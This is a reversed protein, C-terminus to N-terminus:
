RNGALMQKFHMLATRSLVYHGSATVKVQRIETIGPYELQKEEGTPLHWEWAKGLKSYYLFDGHADLRDLGLVPLTRVWKGYLDFVLIGLSPVNLFVQEQHELLYNPKISGSFQNQLWEGEVVQRLDLAMKRLRFAREDYLWFNNDFSRCVLSRTGLKVLELQFQNTPYLMNDLQVLTALEPYFLLLQLPNFVDVGELPGLVQQRYNGVWQGNADYKVLENSRSILYYNGLHDATFYRVPLDLPYSRELRLSDGAEVDTALLSTILILAYIWRRGM